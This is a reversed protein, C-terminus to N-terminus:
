YPIGFRRYVSALLWLPAIMVVQFYRFIPLRKGAQSFELLQWLAVLVFLTGSILWLPTELRELWAAGAAVGVILPLSGIALSISLVFYYVVTAMLFLTGWNLVPSSDSFQRPVPLSWLLGILSTVLLPITVWDLARTPAFARVEGYENLWEEVTTV